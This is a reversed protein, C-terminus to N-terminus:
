ESVRAETCITKVIRETYPDTEDIEMGMVVVVKNELV